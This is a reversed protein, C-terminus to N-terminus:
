QETKSLPSQNSAPPCRSLPRDSQSRLQNGAAGEAINRLSKVVEAVTKRSPKERRAEDEAIGVLTVARQLASEPMLSGRASLPQRLERVLEELENREGANVYNTRSSIRTTARWNCQRAPALLSSVSASSRFGAPEDFGRAPARSRRVSQAAVRRQEAKGHPLSRGNVSLTQQASSAVIEAAVGGTDLIAISALAGGPAEGGERTQFQCSPYRQHLSRLFVPQALVDVVGM